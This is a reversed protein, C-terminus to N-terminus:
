LTSSSNTPQPLNRSQHNNQLQTGHVPLKATEPTLVSDVTISAFRGEIIPKLHALMTNTLTQNSNHFNLPPSTPPLHPSSGSTRYSGQNNRHQSAHSVNPSLTDCTQVLQHFSEMLADVRKLLTM